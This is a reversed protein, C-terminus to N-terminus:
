SPCVMYQMIGSFFVVQQSYRASLLDAAAHTHRMGVKITSTPQDHTREGAVSADSVVV